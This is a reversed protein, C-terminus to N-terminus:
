REPDPSSSLLVFKSSDRCLGAAVGLELRAGRHLNYYTVEVTHEGKELPISGVSITPRHYGDDVIVNRGDIRLRVGDDSNTLFSYIWPQSVIMTATARIAFGDDLDISGEADGPFNADIPFINESGRANGREEFDIATVGLTTVDEITAFRGELLDDALSLELLAVNEDPAVKVNRVKFGESSITPVQVSVSQLSRIPYSSRGLSELDESLTEYRGEPSIRFGNEARVLQGSGYSKERLRPRVEIAGDLVIVDSTGDPGVSVIFETGIHLFDAALTNVMLNSDKDPISVKINGSNITVSQASNLVLEAPGMASIIGGEFLDIVVEGSLLHYIGSPLLRNTSSPRSEAAWQANESTRIVGAYTTTSDDPQQIARREAIVIPDPEPAPSGTSIMLLFAILLSGAFGWGAWALKRSSTSDNEEAALKCVSAEPLSTESPDGGEFLEIAQWQITAHLGMYEVFFRQAEQNGSLISALQERRPEELTGELLAGLIAVLELSPEYSM